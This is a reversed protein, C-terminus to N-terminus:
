RRAEKMQAKNQMMRADAKDKLERLYKDINARDQDSLRNYGALDRVIVPGRELSTTHGVAFSIEPINKPDIKLDKAIKVRKADWIKKAVARLHKVFNNVIDDYKQAKGRPMSLLIEFEDGGTRAMTFRTDSKSYKRLLDVVTLGMTRLYIDGLNHSIQDNIKKLNNMDIVFYTFVRDPNTVYHRIRNSFASKNLLGTDPDREAMNTIITLNRTTLRPYQIDLERLIEHAGEEEARKRLEPFNLVMRELLQARGMPTNLPQKRRDLESPQTEPIIDRITRREHHRLNHNVENPKRIKRM